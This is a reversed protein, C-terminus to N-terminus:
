RGAPVCASTARLGDEVDLLPADGRPGGRAPPAPADARHPASRGSGDVPARAHIDLVRLSQCSIEGRLLQDLHEVRPDVEGPEDSVRLVTVEIPVEDTAEDGEARAGPAALAALASAAVLAALRREFSGM